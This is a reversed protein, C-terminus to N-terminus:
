SKIKFFRFSNKKRKNMLSFCEARKPNGTFNTQQIAKTDADLKNKKSLDIAILKYYVQTIMVKVKQLKNYTIM